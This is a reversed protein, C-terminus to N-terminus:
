SEFSCRTHRGACEIYSAAGLDSGGPMSLDTLAPLRRLVGIQADSLLAHCSHPDAALMEHGLPPHVCRIWDLRVTHLHSLQLWSEWRPHSHEPELAGHPKYLPSQTLELWELFPLQSIADALHQACLCLPVFSSAYIRLHRLTHPLQQPRALVVGFIELRCLKHLQLLPALDHTM